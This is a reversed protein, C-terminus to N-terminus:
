IFENNGFCIYLAILSETLQFGRILIGAIYTVSFNMKTM